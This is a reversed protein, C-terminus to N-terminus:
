QLGFQLVGRCQFNVWCWRVVRGGGRLNYPISEQIRAPVIDLLYDPTLGNLIKYFIVLKHKNRREQLSEWGLDSLLKEITCLKTAGTIIRAADNHVSELQKKPKPRHTTGYLIAEKWFLANLLQTNNKEIHYKMQTNRCM